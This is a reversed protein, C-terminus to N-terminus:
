GKGKSIDRAKLIYGDTLMYLLRGIVLLNITIKTAM